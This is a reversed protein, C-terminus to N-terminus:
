SGNALHCLRCFEFRRDAVHARVDFTEGTKEQWFAMREQPTAGIHQKEAELFLLRLESSVRQEEPGFEHPHELLATAALETDHGDSRSSGIAFGVALGLMLSAATLSIRAGPIGTFLQSAVRNPPLSELDNALVREIRNDLEPSPERLKLGRLRNELDQPVM